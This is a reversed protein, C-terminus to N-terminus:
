KKRHGKAPRQDARVTAPEANGACDLTSRRRYASERETQMKVRLAKINAARSDGGGGADVEEDEVVDDPDPNDPDDPDDEDPNEPDDAGGEGEVISFVFLWAWLGSIQKWM